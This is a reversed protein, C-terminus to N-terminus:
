FMQEINMLGLIWALMRAHSEAKRVEEHLNASEYEINGYRLILIIYVQLVPQVFCIQHQAYITRANVTCVTVALM